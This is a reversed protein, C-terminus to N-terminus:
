VGTSGFGDIGRESDSLEDCVEFGVSPLAIVLAQAIRSGKVVHFGGDIRDNHLKVKVEGRYDSDIVGVCNSLRVGHNFGHGSRSFLMMVHGEPIEFALGTSFIKASAPLVLGEEVACLDFGASGMTAYTPTTADPHLKKIKVRMNGGNEAKNDTASTGSVGM